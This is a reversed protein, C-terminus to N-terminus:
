APNNGKTGTGNCKPCISIKIFGTEEERIVKEGNCYECEDPCREAKEANLAEQAVKLADVLRVFESESARPGGIITVIKELAEKYSM